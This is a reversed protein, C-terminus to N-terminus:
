DLMRLLLDALMIAESALVPDDFDVTRHSAGFLMLAAEMTSAIVDLPANV